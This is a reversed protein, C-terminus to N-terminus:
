GEGRGSNAEADEAEDGRGTGPRDTQGSRALLRLGHRPFPKSSRASQGRLRQTTVRGGKAGREIGSMFENSIKAKEAVAAQTLGNQKRFLHM